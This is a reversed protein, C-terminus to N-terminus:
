GAWAGRQFHSRMRDLVDVDMQKLLDLMDIPVWNERIRDEHLLYFDMVRMTVERGTPGVGLFGGGKHLAYVSPWGGTVAYPGDGIQIYHGGGHKEKLEPLASWQDGGRRNPFALRFPLQHFDVFGQLGRTTGIGAPGYWMMNRHWHEKQPMALLSERDLRDLDDFDALAQHMALVKRISSASEAADQESLVVGDATIPGPWMGESGLSPALPRFGAQRILDLVDWLCSSQVIRGDEVRHVEGYRLYVPRGTAPIGLWDRRFTGCYHGMAAVLEQSRYRGGVFILDRRELDPFAHKLPQWVIGQIADVGQLENLPHSGRWAADPVYLADLRHRLESDESAVLDYLARYLRRKPTLRPSEPTHHGAAM